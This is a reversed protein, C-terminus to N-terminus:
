IELFGLEYPFLAIIFCHMPQNLFQFNDQIRTLLNNKITLEYFTIVKTYAKKFYNYKRNHPVKTIIQPFQLLYVKM